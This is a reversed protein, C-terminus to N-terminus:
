THQFTLFYTNVYDTIMVTYYGPSASPITFTTNPPINGNSDTAFTKLQTLTGSYDIWGIMASTSLKYNCPGGCTVTVVTGTPGATVSLQAHAQHVIGSPYPITEGYLKGDGFVGTLSFFAQFPQNNDYDIIDVTAGLPSKAAFWLTVEGGYPVTIFQGNTKTYAVLGTVGTNVSDIIFYDNRHKSGDKVSDVAIESQPWLTVSRHGADTNTFNVHWALTTKDPVGM